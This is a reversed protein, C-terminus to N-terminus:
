REKRTRAGYCILSAASPYLPPSSTRISTKVHAQVPIANLADKNGSLTISRRIERKDQSQRCHNRIPLGRKLKDQRFLCCASKPQETDFWGTTVCKGACYLSWVACVIWANFCHVLYKANSTKIYRLDQIHEGVLILDSHRILFQFHLCRCVTIFGSLM